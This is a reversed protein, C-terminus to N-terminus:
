RCRALGLSFIKKLICGFGPKKALSKYAAEYFKAREEAMNREKIAIAAAQKELEVARECNLRERSDAERDRDVYEQYARIQARAAELEHLQRLVIRKEQENLPPSSQAKLGSLPM